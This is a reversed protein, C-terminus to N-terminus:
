AHERGGSEKTWEELLRGMLPKNATRIILRGSDVDGYISAVGAKVAMVYDISSPGGLAAIRSLVTKEDKAMQLDTEALKVHGRFDLESVLRATWRLLAPLEEASLDQSHEEKM